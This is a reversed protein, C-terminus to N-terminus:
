ECYFKCEMGARLGVVKGAGETQEADPIMSLFDGSSRYLALSGGGELPLLKYEKAPIAEGFADGMRAIDTMGGRTWYIMVLSAAEFADAQSVRYTIYPLQAPEPTDDGPVSNEEYANVGFSACFRYMARLIDTM